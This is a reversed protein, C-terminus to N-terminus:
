NWKELLFNKFLKISGTNEKEFFSQWKAVSGVRIASRLEVSSFCAIIKMGLTYLLAVEDCLAM